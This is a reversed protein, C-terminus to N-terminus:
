RIALRLLEDITEAVGLTEGNRTVTVKGGEEIYRRAPELFAHIRDVLEADDADPTELEFIMNSLTALM